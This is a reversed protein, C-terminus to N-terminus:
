LNILTDAAHHAILDHGIDAVSEILRERADGGIELGAEAVHHAASHRFGQARMKGGQGRRRVCGCARCLGVQLPWTREEGEQREFVMPPGHNGLDLFKEVTGGCSQCSGINGSKMKKRVAM